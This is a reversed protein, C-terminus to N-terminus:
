WPPSVGAALWCAGDGVPVGSAAAADFLAQAQLALPSGRELFTLRFEPTAETPWELLAMDGDAPAAVGALRIREALTRIAAPLLLRVDRHGPEQEVYGYAMISTALPDLLFTWQAGVYRARLGFEARPRKYKGHYIGFRVTPLTQVPISVNSTGRRDEFHRTSDRSLRLVLGLAGGPLPAGTLAEAEATPVGADPAFRLYAPLGPRTSSTRAPAAPGPGSVASAGAGQTSTSVVETTDWPPVRVLPHLRPRGAGSALESGGGENKARPVPALALVGREVLQDLVQSGDVITLGARGGDAFWDDTAVRIRALEGPDDGDRTDLLVGAEVHLSGIGASTLNASGVYAAQSGDARTFHYTKPHFFAGSFSVIGLSAGRRPIGLLPLLREVDSRLTDGNNSGVLAVVVGDERRLRHLTPVLFGLGDATFFGAQWRVEVVDGERLVVDFWRGLAQFPDRDGSDLYKM